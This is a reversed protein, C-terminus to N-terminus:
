AVGARDRDRDPRSVLGDHIPTYVAPHNLHHLGPLRHIHAAPLPLRHQDGSDGAAARPTPRRGSLITPLQV